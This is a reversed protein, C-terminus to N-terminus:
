RFKQYEFRTKWYKAFITEKKSKKATEIVNQAVGATTGTASFYVVLTKSSKTDPERSHDTQACAAFCIAMVAMVLFIKKM